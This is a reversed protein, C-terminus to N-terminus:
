GEGGTGILLHSVSRVSYIVQQDSQTSLVPNGDGIGLRPGISRAMRLYRFESRCGRLGATVRHPMTYGRGYEYTHIGYECSEEHLNWPSSCELFVWLPNIM